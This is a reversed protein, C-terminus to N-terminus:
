VSLLTVCSYNNKWNVKWVFTSQLFRYYGKSTRSNRTDQIQGNRM